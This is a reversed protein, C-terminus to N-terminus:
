SMIWLITKFYILFDIIFAVTLAKFFRIKDVKLKLPPTTVGIIISFM